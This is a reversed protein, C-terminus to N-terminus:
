AALATIGLKNFSRKSCFQGAPNPQLRATDADHILLEAIRNAQKSGLICHGEFVLDNWLYAPYAAAVSGGSVSSIVSLRSLLGADNLRRLTGIHFLMAGYGGGSLSLQYIQTDGPPCFPLALPTPFRCM